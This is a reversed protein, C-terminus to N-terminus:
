DVGRAAELFVNVVHTVGAAAEHPQARDGEAVLFREVISGLRPLVAQNGFFDGFDVRIENGMGGVALDLRDLVLQQVHHQQIFHLPLLGLDAPEDPLAFIKLVLVFIKLLPEGGQLRGDGSSSLGPTAGRLWSQRFNARTASDPGNGDMSGSVGSGEAWIVRRRWSHCAPSRAASSRSIGSM